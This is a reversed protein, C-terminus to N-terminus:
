VLKELALVKAEKKRGLNSSFSVYLHTTGPDASVNVITLNPIYIFRVLEM